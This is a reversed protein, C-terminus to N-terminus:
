SLLEKFTGWRRQNDKVKLFSLLEETFDGAFPGNVYQYVITGPWLINYEICVPKEYKDITFDWGILEFPLIHRHAEIICSLMQKYSPCSKQTINLQPQSLGNLTCFKMNLEGEANLGAVNVIEEGNRYAVDTYAGKIGFRVSAPFLRIENGKRWSVIRIINVSTDNFQSFFTHQFIREQVIYNKSQVACLMEVTERESTLQFKKVGVGAATSRTQKVIVEPTDLSKVIKESLKKIGFSDSPYYNWDCDFLRGRICHCLAKPFHIQPVLEQYLNKDDWGGIMEFDNYYPYLIFGAIPNPIFRPDHLGTVGYYMQFWSYDKFRIGYQGWFADIEKIDNSDLVPNPHRNLFTQAARYSETFLKQSKYRKYRQSIITLIPQSM